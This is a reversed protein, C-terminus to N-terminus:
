GAYPSRIIDVVVAVIEIEDAPFTEDRYGCAAARLTLTHNVQDYSVRKAVLGGAPHNVVAITEPRLDSLSFRTACAIRDGDCIGADALSSGCITFAIFKKQRAAAHTTVYLTRPHEATEFPIVKGASVQGITNLTM